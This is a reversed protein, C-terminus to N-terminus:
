RGSAGPTRSRPRGAPRKEMGWRPVAARVTSSGEALIDTMQRVADAWNGCLASCLPDCSQWAECIRDSCWEGPLPKRADGGELLSGIRARMRADVMASLQPDQSSANRFICLGRWLSLGAAAGDGRAIHDRADELVALLQQQVLIESRTLLMNLKLELNVMGGLQDGAPRWREALARLLKAGCWCAGVAGLVAGLKAWPMWPLVEMAADLLEPRAHLPAYELDLWPPLQRFLRLLVFCGAVVVVQVALQWLGSIVGTQIYLSIVPWALWPAFPWFIHKMRLCEILRARQLAAAFRVTNERAALGFTVGHAEALEDRIAVLRDLFFCSEEEAVQRAKDQWLELLKANNERELERARGDICKGLRTWWTRSLHFVEAAEEAGEEIGGRATAISAALRMSPLPGALEAARRTFAICRSGLEAEEFTERALKGSFTQTQVLQAYMRLQNVVAEAQMPRAAALVGLVRQRLELGADVFDRSLEEDPVHELAGWQRVDHSASPVVQLHHQFDRGLQERSGDSSKHLFAELQVVLAQVSGGRGVPQQLAWIVTLNRPLFDGVPLGEEELGLRLLSAVQQQESFYSFFQDSLVKVSNLLVTSSFLMALSFMKPGYASRAYESSFLGETDMWVVTGGTPLPEACVYLGRTHTDQQHGVGFGGEYPAHLGMCRNLLFSKGSRYVGLMPVVYLPSPQRALYGLGEESLQFAESSEEVDLLRVPCAALWNGAGAAAASAVAAALAFLPRASQPAM